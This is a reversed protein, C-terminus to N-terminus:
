KNGKKKLEEEFFKKIGKSNAILNPKVYHGIFKEIISGAAQYIIKPVGPFHTINVSFFGDLEVRTRNEGEPFFSWTGECKVFEKFFYPEIKWKETMARTDWLQEDKWKIMHPHLIARVAAPIQGFGHWEVNQYVEHESREERKLVVVKRLNPVFKTYEPQKDRYTTFVVDIPYDYHDTFRLKYM